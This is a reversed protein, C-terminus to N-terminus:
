PARRPARPEPPKVTLRTTWTGKIDAGFLVRARVEPPRVYWSVKARPPAAKVKIKARWTPPPMGIWVARVQPKVVVVPSFWFHTRVRARVQAPEPEPVAVAAYFKPVAVGVLEANARGRPHHVYYQVRLPELYATATVEFRKPWLIAADVRPAVAEWEVKVEDPHRVYVESALEAHGAYAWTLAEIHGAVGFSAEITAAGEPAVAQYDATANAEAATSAKTEFEAYSAAATDLDAYATGLATGLDALMTGHGQVIVKADADADVDARWTGWDDVVWATPQGVAGEATFTAANGAQVVIPDADVAALGVLDVMGTEVGIRAEGTAAVGIAYVTGKTLVVGGPTYVKFAGEGPARPTITFRALGALVAASSAPDASGDRSAIGVTSVEAVEIVSEDALTITANSKDGTRVQDGPFLQTDNKAAQFEAEGVRRVQVTGASATIVAAPGENKDREIGGAEVGPDATPTQGKATAGTDPKTAQPTTSAKTTESPKTDAQKEDGKKCASLALSSALLMTMGTSRRM